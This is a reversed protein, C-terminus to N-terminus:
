YSEIKNELSVFSLKLCLIFLKMYEAFFRCVFSLVLIIQIWIFSFYFIDSVLALELSSGEKELKCILNHDCKM